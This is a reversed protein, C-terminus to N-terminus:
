QPDPAAIRVREVLSPTSPIDPFDTVTRDRGGRKAQYLADDARALTEMPEESPRRRAVGASFTVRPITEAWEERLRRLISECGHLSSGPVIMVFEEGGTRIAADGGGRLQNQLMRGFAILVEDGTAHGYADNLEKFHDLDLFVLCGGVPLQELALVLARRNPLSTLADTQTELELRTNTRLRELVPGAQASLVEVIRRADADFTPRQTSWLAGVVGLQGDDGPIPVYLLSTASMMAVANQDVLPSNPADEVFLV